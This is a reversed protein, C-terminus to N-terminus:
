RLIEDKPIIYNTKEKKNKRTKILKDEDISTDHIKTYEKRIELLRNLIQKEEETIINNRNKEQLEELNVGIGEITISDKEDKFFLIKYTNNEKNTIKLYVDYSKTSNTKRVNCVAEEVVGAADAESLMKYNSKTISTCNAKNESNETWFRTNESNISFSYYTRIMVVLFILFIVLTLILSTGGKEQCIQEITFDDTGYNSKKIRNIRMNAYVKYIPNFLFGSIIMSFIAYPIVLISYFKYIIGAFILGILGIIYMKRYLFYIWSLFFAYINFPRRIIWKYDEGTFAEVLRDDKFNTLKKKTSVNSTTNFENIEPRDPINMGNILNAGVIDDDDDEEDLDISDDTEKIEDFYDDDFGKDEEEEIENTFGEDNPNNYYGCVSCFDENEELKKGCKKCVM